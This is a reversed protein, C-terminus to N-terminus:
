DENGGRARRNLRGRREAAAAAVERDEAMQAYVEEAIREKVSRMGEALLAHVLQSESADQKVRVIHEPASRILRLDELDRETLSVTMRKKISATM